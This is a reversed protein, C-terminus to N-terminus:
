WDSSGGFSGGSSGGSDGSSGGFSDFGYNSYDSYNEENFLNTYSEKNLFEGNSDKEYQPSNEENKNKSLAYAAMGALFLADNKQISSNEGIPGVMKNKKHCTNSCSESKTKPIPFSIQKKRLTPRWSIGSYTSYKPVCTIKSNSVRNGMKKKHKLM